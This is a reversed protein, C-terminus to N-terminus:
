EMITKLILIDRYGYSYSTKGLFNVSNQFNGSLFINNNQNFKFSSFYGGGHFLQLSKEFDGNLNCQVVCADGLGSQAIIQNNGFVLTGKFEGAFFLKNNNINSFSPYYNGTGAFLKCWVLNGNQDMKIVYNEKEDPVVSYSSGDISFDNRFKICMFINGEMDLSLSEGFDVGTSGFSKAWVVNGSSDIKSVFVDGNGLENLINSGLTQNQEFGGVLVINGLEDIKSNLGYIDGYTPGGYTQVWNLIGDYNFKAIFMKSSSLNIEVGDIIFNDHAHGILYINGNKDSTINTVFEYAKGKITKIWTIEGENNYKAFFIEGGNYTTYDSKKLEIDDFSCDNSYTGVVYSNGLDDLAMEVHTFENNLGGATKMWKLKGFKNLKILLLDAHGKAIKYESEYYLTDKFICSSYVNGSIDIEVDTSEDGYKGGATFQWFESDFEIPNVDEGKHCSVFLFLFFIFASHKM